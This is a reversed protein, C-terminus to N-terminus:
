AARDLLRHAEAEVEAIGDEVLRARRRLVRAAALACASTAALAVLLPLHARDLARPGFAIALAPAAAGSLAGIVTAAVAFRRLRRLDRRLREAWAFVGAATLPRKGM